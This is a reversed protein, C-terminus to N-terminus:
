DAAIPVQAAPSAVAAGDGHFALRASAVDDFGALLDRAATPMGASAVGAGALAAVDGGEPGDADGRDAVGDSGGDAMEEDAAVGRDVIDEAGASALVAAEAAAM